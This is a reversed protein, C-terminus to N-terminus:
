EYSAHVECGTAEGIRELFDIKKKCSLGTYVYYEVGNEKGQKSSRVHQTRAVLLENDKEVAFIGNEKCAEYCAKLGIAKIANFFIETQNRGTVAENSDRLTVYLTKNSGHTLQSQANSKRYSKLCVDKWYNGLTVLQHQAAELNAILVANSSNSLDLTKKLRTIEKAVDSKLGSLINKINQSKMTM